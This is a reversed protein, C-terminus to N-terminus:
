KKAKKIFTDIIKRIEKNENQRLSRLSNTKLDIQYLITNNDKNIISMIHGNVHIFTNTNNRLITDMDDIYVSMPYISRNVADLLDQQSIAKKNIAKEKREDITNKTLIHHIIVPEKQKQRHVRANTQQYDKLSWPMTYWILTSGGFQLNLGEGASQPQILLNPVKKENWDKITQRNGDFVKYGIKREDFFKCIMDLDSKFYYAILNNSSSNEILYELMELKHNHIITYSKNSGEEDYISGSAIQSLKGALVAANNATIPEGEEELKLVLTKCFDKYLTKEKDTLYVYDNQYSISPLTINTNDISVIIDKIQQYIAQKAGPKPNWTVPYNNVIIGPNFFANRYTTINKGLRAGGDLLYVQSWLDMLGNPQPTGTLLVIRRLFPRMKALTKFRKSKYSKFNQSEDIILTRFPFRSGYYDILDILNENNILYVAPLSSLVEEYKEHRKNKNLSKGTKENEILSRCRIPFNWNNIEDIWTSKAINLPATILVPETPNLELITQLIILTKGTGMKLFLGAYPNNKIFEKCYIQYDHLKLSTYDM